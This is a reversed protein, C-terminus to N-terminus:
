VWYEPEHISMVNGSSGMSTTAVSGHMADYASGRNNTSNHEQAQLIGLVVLVCEALKVGM